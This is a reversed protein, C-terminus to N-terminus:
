LSHDGFIGLDMYYDRDIIDWEIGIAEAHAWSATDTIPSYPNNYSYPYQSSYPYSSYDTDISFTSHPTYDTTPYSTISANFNAIAQETREMQERSKREAEKKSEAIRKEVAVRKKPYLLAETMDVAFLKQERIYDAYELTGGFSGPTRKNIECRLEEFFNEDIRLSLNQPRKLSKKIEEITATPISMMTSGNISAREIDKSFLEIKEDMTLTQQNVKHAERLTRLMNEAASLHDIADDSDDQWQRIFDLFKEPADTDYLYKDSAFWHILSILVPISRPYIHYARVLEVFAKERAETTNETLLKEGKLAHNTSAAIREFLSIKCEQLLEYAEKASYLKLSRLTDYFYNVYVFDKEANTKEAVSRFFTAFGATLKPLITTNQPEVAALYRIAATVHDLNETTVTFKKDLKLYATIANINEAANEALTRRYEELAAAAPTGDKATLRMHLLPDIEKTKGLPRLDDLRIGLDITLSHFSTASVTRCRIETVGDPLALEKLATCGEFICSDLKKLSAPLKLSELASCGSFAHNGIQEIGDPLILETIGSNSFACAEIETISDPLTLSRLQKQDILASYKLRTLSNPLTLQSVKILLKKLEVPEGTLTLQGISGHFTNLSDTHIVATEVHCKSGGKKIAGDVQLMKLEKARSILGNGINEIAAPIHLYQLDSASYLLGNPLYETSSPLTLHTLATCLGFAAPHIVCTETPNGCDYIEVRELLPACLPGLYTLTSPLHLVRTNPLTAMMLNKVTSAIKVEEATDHLHTTALTTHGQLHSFSLIGYTAAKKDQPPISFNMQQWNSYDDGRYLTFDCVGAVPHRGLKQPILLPTETSKARAAFIIAENNETLMYYFNNKSFLRRKQHRGNTRLRRKEFNVPNDKFILVKGTLLADYREKVAITALEGETPANPDNYAGELQRELRAIHAKYFSNLAM